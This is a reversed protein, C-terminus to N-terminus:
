EISSSSTSLSTSILKPTRCKCTFIKYCLTKQRVQKELQWVCKRATSTRPLLSKPRLIDTEFFKRRVWTCSSLNSANQLNFHVNQQDIKLNFFKGCAVTQRYFGAEWTVAAVVAAIIQRSKWILAIKNCFKIPGCFQIKEAAALSLLLSRKEVFLWQKVGDIIM